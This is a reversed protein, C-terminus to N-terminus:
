GGKKMRGATSKSVGLRGALERVSMQELPIDDIEKHCVRPERLQGEEDFGLTIKQPKNNRALLTVYRMDTDHDQVIDVVTDAKRAWVSSGIARDRPAKYGERGKVKPAGVTGIVAVHRDEAFRQIPTIMQTVTRMDNNDKCWMDLGEVFFIQTGQRQSWIEQLVEGPSRFMEAETLVRHPVDALDVNMRKFTRELSASSRDMMVVVFERGFTARGWVEQRCGQDLLMQIGLTTKGTGSSGQFLSVEGLPFAGEFDGARPGLVFDHSGGDARTKSWYEKFMKDALEVLRTDALQQTMGFSDREYKLYSLMVAPTDGRSACEWAMTMLLDKADEM